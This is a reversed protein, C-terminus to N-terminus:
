KSPPTDSACRFGLWYDRTIPVFITNRFTLKEQAETRTKFNGGRIVAVKVSQMRSSPVIDSTWESVNGAMNFVGYYSKDDPMQDVIQHVHVTMKSSDGSLPVSTNAKLEFTNGWPFVNGKPGRGAMEWERETPLRKGAWKAYAAADYWDINFVPDDLSIDEKNFPVRNKICKYIVEWEKPQHYTDKDTPQNPDKWESDDGNKNQLARLFKLYQGWTVEYKDIYFTHDMKAPGDQYIYDGAAVEIMDNYQRSPPDALFQAYAFYGVILVLAVFGGIMFTQNRKQKRQETEIVQIAINHEQSVAIQREPALDIDISQAESIVKALPVPGERLENLLKRVRLPVQDPTPLLAQVALALLSLDTMGPPTAVQTPDVCNAVKIVGQNNVSVDSAGIVNHPFKNADWFIIVSGVVHIIQAALRGDIAGGATAMEALNPVDWKERAFFARGHNEGAQYVAEVNPHTARAMSAAFSRFRNVEEPTAWPHSLTVFVDRKVGMDYAAYCDGWRDPPQKKGLRFPPFQQGELTALTDACTASFVAEDLPMPFLTLGQIYDGFNKLNYNTVIIVRARRFKTRVASLFSLGDGTIYYLECICLALDSMGDLATIGDEPGNAVAVQAGPTAGMVLQSMRDALAADPHVILVNASM